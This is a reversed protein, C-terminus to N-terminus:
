TLFRLKGLLRAPLSRQEDKGDNLLLALFDYITGREIVIRGDMYLEGLRLEPNLILAREAGPDLFRVRVEEGTGDGFTVERGRATVVTLSGRQVLASLVKALVKEM